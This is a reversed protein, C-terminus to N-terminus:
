AVSIQGELLTERFTLGSVELKVTSGPGGAVVSATFTAHQGAGLGTVTATGRLIATHGGIEVSTVRGTVYMVNVTFEGSGAGTAKAPALALCEFDGGRADAHFAVTTTVPQPAGGGTGGEIITRGAGSVQHQNSAATAHGSSVTLSEILAFAVLLAGPWRWWRQRRLPRGLRITQDAVFQAERSM